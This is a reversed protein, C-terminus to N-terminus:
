WNFRGFINKAPQSELFNQWMMYTFAYQESERQRQIFTVHISHQIRKPTNESRQRTPSRFKEVRNDQSINM